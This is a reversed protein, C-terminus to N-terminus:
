YLLCVLPFFLLLQIGFGLEFTHTSVPCVVTLIQAVVQPHSIKITLFLYPIQVLLYVGRFAVLGLAIALNYYGKNMVIKQKGENAM